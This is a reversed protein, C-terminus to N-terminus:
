PEAGGGEPEAPGQPAEARDPPPVSISKPDSGGGQVRGGEGKIGGRNREGMRPYGWGWCGAGGLGRGIQPSGRQGRMWDGGVTTGGFNLGRVGTATHARFISGGGNEGGGGCGPAGRGAGGRKDSVAPPCCGTCATPAPGTWGTGPRCRESSPAGPWPVACGRKGGRPTPPTGPGSGGRTSRGRRGSGVAGPLPWLWAWRMLM